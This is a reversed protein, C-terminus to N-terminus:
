RKITRIEIGTADYYLDFYYRDGYKDYIDRAKEELQHKLTKRNLRKGSNKETYEAFRTVVLDIEKVVEEPLAVPQQARKPAKIFFHRSPKKRGEEIDRLLREWKNRYSAFRSFFSNVLFQSSVSSTKENQLMTVQQKLRAFEKIPPTREEGLFYLNFKNDVLAIEENLASIKIKLDMPM